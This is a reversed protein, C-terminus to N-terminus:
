EPASRSRRKATCRTHGDCIREAAAAAASVQARAGAAAGARVSPQTTFRASITREAARGGGGLAAPGDEAFRYRIVRSATSRSAVAHEPDATPFACCVAGAAAAAAADGCGSGSAVVRGRLPM